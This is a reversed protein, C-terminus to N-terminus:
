TTFLHGGGRWTFQAGAGTTQGDNHFNDPDVPDLFRSSQEHATTLMLGGSEGLPGAAAASVHRADFTGTGADVSGFWRGGIGSESRVEIVGGSKFGFEPPIYGDRVHVSAIASPNPPLGFLRDLREYIPIGDQVYLLGDDVGRVHLLGNDEMTWGPMAALTSQVRHSPLPESARRVREGSLSWSREATNTDADGRVVVNESLAAGAQLIVEVPLSGRIVLPRSLVPSGAVEVRLLYSGPAVDPFVFSGAADTTASQTLSGGADHLVVTAGAIPAHRVDFVTGSLRAVQLQADARAPVLCAAAALTAM